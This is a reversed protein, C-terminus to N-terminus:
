SEKIATGNVNIKPCEECSIKGIHLRACKTESLQLKKLKAFTTVATNNTVVQHGCKSAQIVDDVMELPPVSVEQGYNYMMNPDSYAQKGLKDMTCSCMLRVWVTGQMDFRESIRQSTKIAVKANLNSYFLLCLKDTKLGADYLDNVCEALWLSDFCKKIDYVCIDCAEDVGRRCANSISNIVFLNDRINRKKRCGVNCDTLNEDVNQYEDIYILRDMINRLVTTRFVGRHSDFDNRDGKNKYISTVNCLQMAEPYAQPNEKLRIMLKVVANM